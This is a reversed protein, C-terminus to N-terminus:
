CASKNQKCPIRPRGAGCWFFAPLPEPDRSASGLPAEQPGGGRAAAGLDPGQGEGSAGLGRPRQLPGAPDSALRAFLRASNVHPGSTPSQPSPPTNGYTLLLFSRVCCPRCIACSGLQWTTSVGPKEYMDKHTHPKGPSCHYVLM